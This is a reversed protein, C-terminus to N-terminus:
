NLAPQCGSFMRRFRRYGPRRAHAQCGSRGTIAPLRTHESPWVTVARPVARVSCPVAVVPRRAFWFVM